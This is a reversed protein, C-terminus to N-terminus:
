PPGEPVATRAAAMVGPVVTAAFRRLQVPDHLDFAASPIFTATAVLRVLVEAVLVAEPPALGGLASLYGASAQVALRAVPAGEQLVRGSIAEPETRLVQQLAPHDRLFEVAYVFTEVMAGDLDTAGLARTALGDIFRGVERRAVAVVVADKNAFQRYLWERSVEARNAINTMTTARIGVESFADLAADLIRDVTTPGQDVPRAAPAVLRRVQELLDQPNPVLRAM